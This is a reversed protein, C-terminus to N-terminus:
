LFGKTLEYEDSYTGQLAVNNGDKDFIQVEQITLYNNTQNIRVFRIKDPECMITQGPDAGDPIFFKSPNKKQEQRSVVTFGEIVDLDKKLCKEQKKRENIYFEGEKINNSM